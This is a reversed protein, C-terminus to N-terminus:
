PFSDEGIDPRRILGATELDRRTGRVDPVGFAVLIRRAARAEAEPLALLDGALGAADTRELTRRVAPEAGGGAAQATALLINMLGHHSADRVAHVPGACTFPLDREACAAIFAALAGAGPVGDTASGGVRYKAGLAAERPVHAATHAASDRAAAIRDLAHLWGPSRRVEIRTPVDAPLRAITVAAARAQDASRPLAIEVSAPRVRPEGRVADLTKPLEEIGTDAVVGLDLLDEPVLHTRLEAFRSAPCLFRGALPDAPRCAARHAPLARDMPAHHPPFLAADDLLRALLAGM